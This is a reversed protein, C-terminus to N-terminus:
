APFKKGQSTFAIPYCFSYFMSKGHILLLLGSPQLPTPLMYSIAMRTLSMSAAEKRIHELKGWTKVKKETNTKRDGGINQDKRVVM